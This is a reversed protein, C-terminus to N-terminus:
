ENGYFRCLIQEGNINILEYTIPKTNLVKEIIFIKKTFKYTFCKDFKNEVIATPLTPLIFRSLDAKSYKLIKDEGSKGIELLGKEPDIELSACKKARECECM